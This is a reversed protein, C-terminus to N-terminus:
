VKKTDKTGKHHLFDRAQPLAPKAITITTEPYNAMDLHVGMLSSFIPEM